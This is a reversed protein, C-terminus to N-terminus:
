RSVEAAIYTYRPGRYNQGNALVIDIDEGRSSSMLKEVDKDCEEKSDYVREFAQPPSVDMDEYSRSHGPYDPDMELSLNDYKVICYRTGPNM